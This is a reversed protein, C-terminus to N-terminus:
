LMAAIASRTTNMAAPRGMVSLPHPRHALDRRRDNRAKEAGPLRAEQAMEDAMGAFATEREDDVFEALQADIALQQEAATVFRATRAVHDLEGIAADAAGHGFIKQRRELPQDVAGIRGVVDYDLGRTKSQGLRQNLREVPRLDLRSNRARSRGAALDM